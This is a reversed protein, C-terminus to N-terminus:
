NQIELFMQGWECINEKLKKKFKDMFVSFLFHFSIIQNIFSACVVSKDMHYDPFESQEKVPRELCDCPDTPQCQSSGM